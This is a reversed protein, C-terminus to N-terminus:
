TGQRKNGDAKSACNPVGERSGGTKVGVAGKWHAYYRDFEDSLQKIEAQLAVLQDPTLTLVNDM